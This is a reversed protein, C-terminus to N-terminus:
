RFHLSFIRLFRSCLDPSKDGQSALRRDTAQRIEELGVTDHAVRGKRTVEFALALLASDRSPKIYQGAVAATELAPDLATSALMLGANSAVNPARNPRGGGSTM